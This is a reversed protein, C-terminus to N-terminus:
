GPIILHPAATKQLDGVPPMDEGDVQWGDLDEEEEEENSLHRKIGLMVVVIDLLL